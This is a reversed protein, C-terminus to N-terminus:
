VHTLDKRLISYSKYTLYKGAGLRDQIDSQLMSQALTMFLESRVLFTNYRAAILAPDVRLVSAPTGDFFLCKSFLNDRAYKINACETQLETFMVRAVIDNLPKVLTATAAFASRARGNYDSDTMHVREQRARVAATTGPVVYTIPGVAVGAVNGQEGKYSLLLDAAAGTANGHIYSIIRHSWGYFDCVYTSHTFAYNYINALPIERMMAHINIPPINLDLINAIMMANDLNNASNTGLLGAVTSDRTPPGVAPPPAIARVSVSQAAKKAISFLSESEYPSKTKQVIDAIALTQISDYAFSPRIEPSQIPTTPLLRALPATAGVQNRFYWLFNPPNAGTYFNVTDINLREFRVKPAFNYAWALYRRYISNNMNYKAITVYNEIFSSVETQDLKDVGMSNYSEVIDKVGIFDDLKIGNTLLTRVGRLYMYPYSGVKCVETSPILTSSIDARTDNQMQVLFSTSLPMFPRKGNAQEFKKIFSEEIEFYPFSNVSLDSMIEEFSEIMMTCGEMVKTLIDSLDRREADDGGTFKKVFMMMLRCRTNLQEFLRIYSPSLVKFKDKIDNPVDALSKDLHLYEGTRFHRSHTINHFIIALSKVLVNEACFDEVGYCYRASGDLVFNIGLRHNVGEIATPAPPGAGFANSFVDWKYNICQREKNPAGALPAYAATNWVNNSGFVDPFGARNSINSMFTSSAILKAFVGQYIKGDVNFEKLCSALIKNFNIVISDQSVSTASNLYGNVVGANTSSYIPHFVRLPNDWTYVSEDKFAYDAQFLKNKGDNDFHSILQQYVNNMESVFKTNDERVVTGPAPPMNAKDRLSFIMMKLVNPVAAGTARADAIFRANLKENFTYIWNANDNEYFLTDAFYKEMEYVSGITAPNTFEKVFSEGLKERTVHVFHKLLKLNSSVVKQLKAFDMVFKDDAFSIDVLDEKCPSAFSALREFTAALNIQLQAMAAAVAPPPVGNRYNHVFYNAGSIPVPGAANYDVDVVPNGGTDELHNRFQEIYNRLVMLTNLGLIVFEHFAIFYEIKGAPIHQATEFINAVMRFRDEPNTTVKLDKVVRTVMNTIEPIPATTIFSDELHIRFRELLQRQAATIHYKFKLDDQQISANAVKSLYKDSPGSSSSSDEDQGDLIDYDMRDGYNEDYRMNKNPKPKLTKLYKDYYQKTFIGYRRNIENIFGYICARVPDKEHKYSDYIKNIERVYGTQEVATMQTTRFPKLWIMRIFNRFIGNNDPIMTFMKEADNQANPAVVPTMDAYTDFDFLKQYYKGLLPLRIYLEVINENVPPVNESGGILTRWTDIPAPTQDYPQDKVSMVNHARVVTIVKASMAKLIMFFIENDETIFDNQNGILTLLRQRIIAGGTPVEITQVNADTLPGAFPVHVAGVVPPPGILLLNGAIEAEVFGPKSITSMFKKEMEGFPALSSDSTLHDLIEQYFDKLSAVTSFSGGPLPVPLARPDSMQMAGAAIIARNIASELRRQFDSHANNNVSTMRYKIVSTQPDPHIMFSCYKLYRELNKHIQGPKMLGQEKVLSLMSKNGFKEGIYTFLSVLNLLIELNEIHESLHGQTQKMNDQIGIRGPGAAGAVVLRQALTESERPDGVGFNPGGSPGAAPPWTKPNATLAGAVAARDNGVVGGATIPLTEFMQELHNGTQQTFWEAVVETNDLMSKIDELDEINTIMEKTFVKLYIDVAEAAKYLGERANAEKKIHKLIIERQKALAKKLDPNAESSIEAESPSVSAALHQYYAAADMIKQAIAQGLVKDYNEGYSDIEKATNKLNERLNHLHYFYKLNDLSSALEQTTGHLAGGEVSTRCTDWDDDDVDDDAGIKYIEDVGASVPRCVEDDRGYVDDPRSPVLVDEWKGITALLAELSSILDRLKMSVMQNEPNNAANSIVGICAKVDNTFSEKQFRSNSDVHYGSLALELKKPVSLLNKLNDLKTVVYQFDINPKINGTKVADALANVAMIIKSRAANINARFIKTEIKKIKKRSGLTKDLDKMREDDLDDSGKIIYGNERCKGEFFELAQAIVRLDADDKPVSTELKQKIKKIVEGCKQHIDKEFESVDIGIKKLKEIHQKATFKLLPLAVFAKLLENLNHREGESGEKFFNELSKIAEENLEGNKNIDNIWQVAGNNVSVGLAYSLEGYVAKSAELIKKLDDFYSIILDKNESRQVLEKEVLNLSQELFATAINSDKVKLGLEKTVQLCKGLDTSIAGKTAKALSAIPDEGGGTCGCDSGTIQRLAGGMKTTIANFTKSGASVKRGGVNINYNALKALEAAGDINTDVLGSMANTVASLTKKYGM